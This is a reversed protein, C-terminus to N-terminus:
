VRNCMILINSFSIGKSTLLVLAKITNNEKLKEGSKTRYVGDRVNKMDGYSNQEYKNENFEMLNKDAIYEYTRIKASVKTNAFLRSIINKLTEEIDSIM